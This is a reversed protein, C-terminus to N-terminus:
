ALEERELEDSFATQIVVSMGLNGNHGNANHEMRSIEHHGGKTQLSPELISGPAKPPGIHSTWRKMMQGLVASKVPKSLYDDMGAELCKKEDGDFANATMAIITTHRGTGERRRIEATAEFGDMQPMQCDMLIIDVAGSDLMALLEIGNNVAEAHYGLSRLQGIAVKQNVLNDEAVLVRTNSAVVKVSTDLGLERLSHRTLLRSLGEPVRDAGSMVANLCDYLQSQRVPKQLYAAIGTQWAREGHGRKGISPLLVLKVPAITSDSKIAEALQFGDMGSMMLDLLAVDFPEGADVGARLLELAREGSDAETAIMGWSSTQHILINANTANDDVILVRTGALNRAFDPAAAIKVAQKEFQGTFWFTSGKGPSSVIGIEGNMLEVLQKSIALGLGTGSYKRTTSGDAQTFARFLRRQAEQSIGIGTDRIEFRLTTYLVTESVKSVEVFVEGQDTFKISNGILNTMIQRLRGPDGRLATPVDDHVLSALELLKAQARGALIEVSADVAGMLEFDISEFRLLGAEIKSFDLIDDIITLLADASSQITQTYGRQLQSQDTDLLLDTMGIVGNMPTRIEHSMNALFESKLRVSELAADRALKLEMEIAKRETAEALVNAISSLFNVEDNTFSRLSDTHAALVGYPHEGGRIVVSM